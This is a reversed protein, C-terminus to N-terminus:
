RELRLSTTERLTRLGVCMYPMMPVCFSVPNYQYWSLLAKAPAGGGWLYEYFYGDTYAVPAVKFYHRTNYVM